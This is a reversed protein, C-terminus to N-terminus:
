SLDLRQHECSLRSPSRDTTIGPLTLFLSIAGTLPLAVIHALHGRYLAGLPRSQCANPFRNPFTPWLVLAVGDARDLHYLISGNCQRSYCIQRQHIDIFCLIRSTSQAYTSHTFRLSSLSRVKISMNVRGDSRWGRKSYM